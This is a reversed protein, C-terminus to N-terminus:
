GPVSPRPSRAMWSAMWLALPPGTGAARHLNWNRLAPCPWTGPIEGGPSRYSQLLSAWQVASRPVHSEAQLPTCLHHVNRLPCSGPKRFRPPRPCGHQELTSTLSDIVIRHEHRNKASRALAHRNGQDQVPDSDRPATGALAMTSLHHGNVTCLLEPSAGWSPRSRATRFCFSMVNPIAKSSYKSFGPCILAWPM